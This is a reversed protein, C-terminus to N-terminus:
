SIQAVFGAAIVICVQAAVKVPLAELADLLFFFGKDRRMYGLYGLTLTTKLPREELSRPRGFLQAARTGIYSKRTLQPLIGYRQALIRVADSVCLVHDCHTNIL